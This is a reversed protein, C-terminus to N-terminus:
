EAIEAAEAAKVAEAAEREAAAQKEMQLRLAEREQQEKNERQIIEM